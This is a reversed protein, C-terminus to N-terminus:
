EDDYSYLAANNIKLLLVVVISAHVLIYGICGFLFSL